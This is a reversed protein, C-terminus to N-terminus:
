RTGTSKRVGAYQFFLTYWSMERQRINGCAHFAPLPGVSLAAHCTLREPHREALLWGVAAGWDHSILAVKDIGATM